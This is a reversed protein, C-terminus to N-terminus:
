RSTSVLTHIRSPSATSATQTFVLFCPPPMVSRGNYTGTSPSHTFTAVPRGAGPSNRRGACEALLLAGESVGEGSEKSAEHRLLHSPSTRMQSADVHATSEPATDNNGGCGALVLLASAAAAIGLSKLSIKKM